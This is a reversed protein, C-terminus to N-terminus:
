GIIDTVFTVFLLFVHRVPRSKHCGIPNNIEIIESIVNDYRKKM